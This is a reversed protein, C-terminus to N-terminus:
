KSKGRNLHDIKRQEALEIESPPTKQSKKVFGNTLVVLNGKDMFGLLRFSDSGFDIRVEWIGDTGDLKKFYQIPVMKLTEVLQLVWTVKKAHKASLSDLFDEVPRDGSATKYFIIERM